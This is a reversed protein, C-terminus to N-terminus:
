FRKTDVSIPINYIFPRINLFYNSFAIGMNSDSISGSILAIIAITLTDITAQIQLIVLAFDEDINDMVTEFESDLHLQLWLGIVLLGLVVCVALIEYIIIRQRIKIWNNM